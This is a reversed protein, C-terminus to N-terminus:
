CIHLYPLLYFLPQSNCGVSEVPGRSISENRMQCVSGLLLRNGMLQYVYGPEEKTDVSPKSSSFFAKRRQGRQGKDTADLM